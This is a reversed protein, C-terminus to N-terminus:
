NSSIKGLSMFASTMQGTLHPIIKGQFSFQLSGNTLINLHYFHLLSYVKFIEEENGRPFQSVGSKALFMVLLHVSITVGVITSM